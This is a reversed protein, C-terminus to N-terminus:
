KDDANNEKKKHTSGLCLFSSGLCLWVIAMSNENGTTLGIASVILFLASVVYFLISKNIGKKM